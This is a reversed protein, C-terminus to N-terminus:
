QVLVFKGLELCSDSGNANTVTLSIDYEGPSAFSHSPNQLSSSFGDGYNWNWQIINGVSLDTFDVLLPAPGTLPAGTFNAQISPGPLIDIHSFKVLTDTGYSNTSTLSTNYLGTVTYTHSPNQLTSTSGDGFNWLWTTTIGASSQDIFNVVMPSPGSLPTASYAAVPPIFDVTVFTNKTLTTAGFSNSATLSVTFFGSTTYSHSPAELISTSGDGFDWLWNTSAGSTSEDTFDVLLPSLGATPTASFDAQPPIIDVQVASPLTRTHMGEANMVTLSVSFNGSNNYIYSPNQLTSTGGDGFDWFLARPKGVSQDRFNVSLPSV